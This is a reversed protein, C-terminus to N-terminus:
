KGKSRGSAHDAIYAAVAEPGPLDKFCIPAAGRAIRGRRAMTM